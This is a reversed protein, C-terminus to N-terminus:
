TTNQCLKALKEITTHIIDTTIFLYKIDNNKKYVWTKDRVKM